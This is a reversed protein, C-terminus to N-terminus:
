EDDEDEYDIYYTDEGYARDYFDNLQERMQTLSRFEKHRASLKMIGSDISGVVTRAMDDAINEALEILDCTRRDAGDYMAKKLRMTDYQIELLADMVRKQNALIQNRVYMAGRLISHEGNNRGVGVKSEFGGRENFKPKKLLRTTVATRVKTSEMSNLRKETETKPLFGNLKALEENTFAERSDGILDAIEDYKKKTDTM